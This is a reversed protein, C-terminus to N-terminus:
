PCSARTRAPHFASHIAKAIVGQGVAKAASSFRPARLGRGAHSPKLLVQMKTARASLTEPVQLAAEPRAKSATKELSGRSEVAQAVQALLEDNSWPKPTDDWRAREQAARAM